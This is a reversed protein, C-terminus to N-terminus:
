ATDTLTALPYKRSYNKALALQERFQSTASFATGPSHKTERTTINGDEPQSKGAQHNSKLCFV